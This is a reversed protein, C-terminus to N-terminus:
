LLAFSNPLYREFPPGPWTACYIGPAGDIRLGAALLSVFAARNTGPVVVQCADVPDALAILRGLIPAMLREDTVAVPGIRGSPHFYGYAVVDGSRRFVVGHRGADRWARHDAPREHGLLARDLREVPEPPRDARGAITRARGHGTAAARPRLEDFAVAEMGPSLGPLAREKARGVFMYVPLRPIMGFRAYLATSVPQFSEVCTALSVGDNPVTTSGGGPRARPVAALEDPLCRLLLRRGVGSGQHERLVFLFSLFWAPGRRNAFAFGIATGGVEALWAHEPDTALLHRFQRELPAPNRPMQPQGLRDHLEEISAYFVDRCREVDDTTIPRLEPGPAPSAGSVVSGTV